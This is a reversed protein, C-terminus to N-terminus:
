TLHIHVRLFLFDVQDRYGIWKKINYYMHGALGGVVFRKSSNRAYYPDLAIAKMPRHYDFKLKADTYLSNIAVSGDDSCSAIYEGEIDFCLDNVTAGHALFEKVKATFFTLYYIILWLIIFVGSLLIIENRLCILMFLVVLHLMYQSFLAIIIILTM